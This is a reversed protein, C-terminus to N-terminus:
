VNGSEKKLAEIISIARRLDEPRANRAADFLTRMEPTRRMEERLQWIDVDDQSTERAILTQTRGLLSDTTYGLFQSLTDLEDSSPTYDGAVLREIIEVDVGLADAVDAYRTRNIMCAMQVREGLTDYQTPDNSAGTLYLFPVGLAEAIKQAIELKPERQDNEYRSIAQKSTGIMEALRDQSIKRQARITRMRDGFTVM